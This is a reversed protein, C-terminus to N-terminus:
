VTATPTPQPKPEASLTDRIHKDLAGLVASQMDSDRADVESFKLTDLMFSTFSQADKLVSLPVSPFTKMAWQGNVKQPLTVNTLKRTDLEKMVGAYQAPVAGRDEGGPQVKILPAKQDIAATYAPHTLVTNYYYKYFYSLKDVLDTIIEARNSLDDKPIKKLFDNVKHPDLYNKIKPIASSFKSLDAATFNNRAQQAPAAIFTTVQVLADALAYVQMVANQTRFDWLGDPQKESKSSGIRSLGDLVNKMEINDTPLKSDNSTADADPNFEVGHIGSGNTYQESIFDNFDKKPDQIVSQNRGPVPPAKKYSTAVRAFNQISKQMEMVPGVVAPAAHGGGQPAPQGPVPVPISKTTEPKYGSPPAPPPAATKQIQAVIEKLSLKSM